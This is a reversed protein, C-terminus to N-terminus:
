QGFPHFVVPGALAYGASSLQFWRAGNPAIVSLDTKRDGDFDDAVGVCGPIGPFAVVVPAAVPYGLSSLAFGWQGGDEYYLGLDPRGDGDFDRAFALCGRVGFTATAEQGYGTSSLLVRWLSTGRHYLTPDALGDGDFDAAMAAYGAGGFVGSVEQGTLSYRLRWAGASERYVAFDTRGDGDFDGEVPTDGAGGFPIAYTNAYGESSARAQWLGGTSAFVVPDTKRDGDFDGRAPASAADGVLFPGVAQSASYGVSSLLFYWTGARYALFDARCDGDYDGTGATVATPPEPQDKFPYLALTVAPETFGIGSDSGYVDDYSLAYVHGALGYRHLIQGYYFIPFDATSAGNLGQYYQNSDKWAVTGNDLHMVGRDISVPIAMAVPDSIWHAGPGTAYGDQGYLLYGWDIAEPLVSAGGVNHWLAPYNAFDPSGWANSPRPLTPVAGYPITMAADSFISLTLGDASVRGFYTTPDSALKSSFSFTRNPKWCHQNVYDDLFHTFMQPLAGASVDSYGPTKPSLVRVVEGAGNRIICARFIEPNGSRQAPDAAAPIAEFARFIVPSSNTLGVTVREGTSRTASITYALSFFDVETSNLFGGAHLDVEFKGWPVPNAAGMLPGSVPLTGMQDFNKGLSFYVRSSGMVPFPITATGDGSYIRLQTLSATMRAADFTFSPTEVLAHTRFDLYGLPSQCIVLFYVQDDPYGSHNVISLRMVADAGAPQPCAWTGAAALLLVQALRSPVWRRRSEPPRLASRSNVPRMTMNREPAWPRPNGRERELM